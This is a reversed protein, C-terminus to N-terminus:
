VTFFLSYLLHIALYFYRLLSIISLYKPLTVNIIKPIVYLPSQIKIIIKKVIFRNIKLMFNISIKM